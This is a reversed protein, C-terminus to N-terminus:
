RSLVWAGDIFSAYIPFELTGLEKSERSRVPSRSAGDTVWVIKGGALARFAMKEAKLPEMKLGEMKLLSKIQEKFKAGSDDAADYRLRSVDAEKFKFLEYVRDADKKIMAQHLDKVLKTIKKRADANLPVAKARPWLESPPPYDPTFDIEKKLPFKLKALAADGNDGKEPLVFDIIKEGENSMQGKRAISISFEVGPNKGKDMSRVTIAVRNSGPMVWMGIDSFGTASNNYKKQSRVLPVGNLEISADADALRYNLIYYYENSKGSKEDAAARDGGAVAISLCLSLILLPATKM